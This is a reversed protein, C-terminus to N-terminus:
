FRRLLFTLGLDKKEIGAGGQTQLDLIQSPIVLIEAKIARSFGTTRVLEFWLLKPQVRFQVQPETQSIKQVKFQVQPETRSPEPEFQLEPSFKEVVVIM